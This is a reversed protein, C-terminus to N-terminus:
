KNKVNFNSHHLHNTALKESALKELELRAAQKEAIKVFPTYGVFYVGACAFWLVIAKWDLSSNLFAMTFLPLTWPNDITTADVMGTSMVLYVIAANLVPLLVFPIFWVINLMIPLGFIMPENINFLGIFASYICFVMFFRSFSDHTSDEMMTLFLWIFTGSALLFSINSIILISFTTTIFKKTNALKEIRKFDIVENLKYKEITEQLNM